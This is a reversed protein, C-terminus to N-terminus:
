EGKIIYNQIVLEVVKVDGFRGSRKLDEARAIAKGLEMGDGVSEMLIPKGIPHGFANLGEDSECLIGFMYNRNM